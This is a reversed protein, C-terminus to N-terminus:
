KRRKDKTGEYIAWMGFEKVVRATHKDRTRIRKARKIAESKRREMGILKMGNVM